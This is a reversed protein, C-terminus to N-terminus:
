WHRPARAPALRSERYVLYLSSGFIIAAGVFTTLDPVEGFWLFGLASAWILKLFDYPMVATAETLRLAETLAIQALTGVIGMVVLWTWTEPTPTKWVYLAPGFSFVTLFIAMYATITLSSDTRGMVKIMIMAIGWLAASVITLVSGLDVAVIGPRLIVLTGAFGLVIASWRRARFREHLFVVGLVAAFIPASFQIATVRALPTLSLATFFALMAVVNILARVLHLRIQRTYLFAPGFRLLIPLFVILGFLNRFFGVEVPSIDASTHRVMAHMASFAFTSMIMLLAGRRADDRAVADPRRAPRVPAQEERAGAAGGDAPPDTAGPEGPPSKEQCDLTRGGGAPAAANEDAAM